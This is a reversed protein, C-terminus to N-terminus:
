RPDQIEESIFPVIPQVAIASTPVDPLKPIFKLFRKMFEKQTEKGGKAAEKILNKNFPRALFANLLRLFGFGALAGAGGGLSLGTTGVIASPGLTQASRLLGSRLIFTNVDPLVEPFKKLINLFQFLDEGSTNPYDKLLEKTAAFKKSNLNDFGFEKYLAGFDKKDGRLYKKFIDDLYNAALTNIRQVGIIERLEKVGEPSKVDGFTKQYLDELRQSPPRGLGPRLARKGLADAYAKGTKGEVVAMYEKFLRDASKMLRGAKERPNRLSNKLTKQMNTILIYTTNDKIDGKLPDYKKSFKALTEDILKIDSFSIREKTNRIKTIFDSVEKPVDAFTGRPLSRSITRNLTDLAYYKGKKNYLDEARKYLDTYNKRWKNFSQLGFDKIIKSREIETIPNTKATALIRKDLAEDVQRFTALLQKQGPAGALPMRSSLNYIGRVFPSESAQGLSLEVGEDALKVAEEAAEDTLGLTRELFNIRSSADPASKKIKDKAKLVKGVLNKVKPALAKGAIPVAATIAADVTGTIAADKIRQEASPRPMDPSLLDGLYDAALSGAAAGAGAGGAAGFPGGALFGGVAGATGGLIELFPEVFSPLRDSYDNPNILGLEIGAERTKSYYTKADIKQERLLRSGNLKVEEFIRRAEERDRYQRLQESM